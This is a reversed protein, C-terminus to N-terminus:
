VIINSVRTQTRAEATTTAAHTPKISFLDDNVDDFRRRQQALGRGTGTVCVCM